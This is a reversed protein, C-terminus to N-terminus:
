EVAISNVGYYRAMAANEWNNRDSSIDTKLLVSGVSTYAPVVVDGKDSREIIKERNCFQERVSQPTGSLLEGAVVATSGMNRFNGFFLIFVICFAALAPYFMKFWGPLRFDEKVSVNSAIFGIIMTYLLIAFIIYTYFVINQLRGDGWNGMAYYPVCIMGCIVTYFMVAAACIHWLKISKIHSVVKYLVPTLVVLLAFFSLTMYEQSIIFFRYVAYIITVPISQKSVSAQRVATGPATLVVALGIVAVAICLAWVFATKRDKLVVALVLAAIGILIYMFASVQNGGAIVFAAVASAFLPLAKIKKNIRMKATLCLSIVALSWFIGYYAAGNFWYFGETLDPLCQTFYFFLVLAVYKRLGKEEPAFFDFLSRVLVWVAAFLCIFIIVPGLFAFKLGFGAPQLAMVLSGSYTGQWTFYFEKATRIARGFIQFVDFGHSSVVSHVNYGYSLDDAAPVAYFSIILLPLISAMCLVAVVAKTFKKTDTLRTIYNNIKMM